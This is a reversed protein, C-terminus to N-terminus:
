DPSIGFRSPEGLSTLQKNVLAWVPIEELKEIQEWFNGILKDFQFERGIVKLIEVMCKAIGELSQACLIEFHAKDFGVIGALGTHVAFNRMDYGQTVRLEITADLEKARKELTWDTWHDPASARGWLAVNRATIREENNAIFEAHPAAFTPTADLEPHAAFFKVTRRAAKLRQADTFAIVREVGDPAVNRHLLELDVYLELVSREASTIAQQHALATLVMAAKGFGLARYYLGMLVEERPTATLLGQLVKNVVQDAFMDCAEILSLFSGALLTPTIGVQRARLADNTTITNVTHM